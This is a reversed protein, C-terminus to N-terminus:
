YNIPLDFLTNCVVLRDSIIPVYCLIARYNRYNEDKFGCLSAAYQESVDAVDVFSIAM